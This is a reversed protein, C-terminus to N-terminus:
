RGIASAPTTASDLLDLDLREPAEVTFLQVGINVLGFGLTGKWIGRPM